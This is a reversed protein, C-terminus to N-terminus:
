TYKMILVQSISVRSFLFKANQNLKQTYKYKTLQYKNNEKKRKEKKGKMSRNIRKM